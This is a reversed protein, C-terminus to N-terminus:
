RALNKSLTLSNEGKEEERKFEIKKEDGGASSSGIGAM